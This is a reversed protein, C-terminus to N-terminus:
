FSINLGVVYEKQLPIDLTGSLEPDLGEFKTFTFLNRGTLYIRLQEIGARTIFSAPLDYSLSIDKIRVFGAKEYVRMPVGGQYEADYHNVIWDNTPNEPTWWDKLTRNVRVEALAHDTKLGNIKTVGHVGHLFVNLTFNRYSVTNTLGWLFKPDRQGIIQRDDANIVGDNNLDEVKVFGPQQGYTEAEAAEDLQWTGIWKYTYNVNIPSGIFWANAVDDIEKGDEDLFGYLSIIENKNFSLNGNTRWSFNSTSINISNLSLEFGRNMTEGINQTISTIGHVPSITRDLLLDTTNTRYVNIDGQIRNGLFGFDLGINMTRSSEWGLNDQALTLPLYGAVPQNLSVMNAGESTLQAITQYPGVAQNGNLGYSARLKLVSFFDTWPFFAEQHINWGVAASPFTGWKTKEGFGSFGDRRATLTLLYRNDYSYNLRLMQSILNSNSYAFSPLVFEAQAAAYWTLIDSPFRNADLQNANSRNSEISYLLTGSIGHKGFENQYTLINDILYNNSESKNNYSVGGNDFGILTNRGIYTAKDSYLWRIGTNLRYKLGTLFPFNIEIFNNSFASYRKDIDDYLTPALPNAHNPEYPIPFVTLNGDANYAEGLPNTNFVDSMNPAAGSLDQYALQTRTGFTLWKTINADFNIRFTTQSFKDNLAIGQVDFFGGAIYYNTNETGGAVSLSHQHSQGTRFALDPWNTWNGSEYRETDYEKIASPDRILKFNYFEGGDMIRPQNDLKQISYYGNYSITPKTKRGIKTTILVVGNSGRSGYIASASADKLIEISEVDNPNVSELSSPVGDVIVLPENSAKISNRGRILFSTRPNAGAGTQLMLVGPVSGQIAQAVNLNPLMEMREDPISAISGTIDSKKQVGYGIVVVEELGFIDVALEVDLVTQGNVPLEQTLYGVYSFVLVAAPDDLELSYEGELNSVTGKSTGKILISVGPIPEGKEDIVKGTITIPQMANKKSLVILNDDFVEYDLDSIESIDDLIEMWSKDKTDLKVTKDKVTESHYLFRYSTYQEIETLVQKLDTEELAIIRDTKQSLIDTAFIQITFVFSLFLCFKMILLIKLAYGTSIPMCGNPNKKM